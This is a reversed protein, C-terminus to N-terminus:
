HRKNHEGICQATDRASASGKNLCKIFSADRHEDKLCRKMADERESSSLPSSSETMVKLVSEEAGVISECESESYHRRCGGLALLLLLAALFQTQRM